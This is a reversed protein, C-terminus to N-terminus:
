SVPSGRWLYGYVLSVVTVLIFTFEKCKEESGEQYLFTKKYTYSVKKKKCDYQFLSLFTNRRKHLTTKLITQDLYSSFHSSLKKYFERIDSTMLIPKAM